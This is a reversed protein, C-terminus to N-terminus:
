RPAAETRALRADARDLGLCLLVVPVLGVVAIALAPVAALDLRETTALQFAETALTDFNFPRLIMTAPLEKVVEVFVLAMVAAMSSRMLPLDVRFLISAPGHGLTRAPDAYRTGMKLWAADLPSFAVAFFRVLCAYLLLAISGSLLLGSGAGGLLGWNRLQGDLMGAVVLLGIAVVVGPTAYGLEAARALYRVAGAHRGLLMSMSTAVVLLLFAAGIALVGTNMALTEIRALDIDARADLAMAALAVSPLVFGLLVPAACALGAAVAPVGNLKSRAARRMTGASAAYRRDGRSAQELVVALLVCALMLSALQAAAAPNGTAFWARYIGTTFVELDFYKVAGFDALTEMGVLIAGAALTPRAMPMAVRWFAQLRGLGMTRAAETATVSQEGFAARAILYLYPFLALSLVFIAGGLSRIEPFWYDRITWGTAERLTQQVPGTVQLLDTWAYALIYAPMALPLILAYEFLRRGPFEHMTVLWALGVGMLTSVAVVGAVLLLSNAIYAALVTARLHAWLGGTDTTAFALVAALPALIVVLLALAALWSASRTGGKRGSMHSLFGM